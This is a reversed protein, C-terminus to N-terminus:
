LDSVLLISTDLSETEAMTSLPLRQILKKIDKTDEQMHNLNVNMINISGNLGVMQKEVESYRELAVIKHKQIEKNGSGSIGILTLLLLSIVTGFVKVLLTYSKVKIM